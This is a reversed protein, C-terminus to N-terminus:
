SFGKLNEFGLASHMKQQKEKSTSIQNSKKKMYSILFVLHAKDPSCLM